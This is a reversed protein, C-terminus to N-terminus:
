DEWMDPWHRNNKRSNESRTLLQMNQECHLGCVHKGLLPVVHDVTLGLANATKYIEAITSLNAWKPLAKLEAARRTGSHFAVADPNAKKWAKIRANCEARNRERYSAERSRYSALNKARSKRARELHQDKTRAQYNRKAARISDKNQERYAKDSASKRDKNCASWNRSREKIAEANKLYYLRKYEKDCPKCYTGVKQKQFEFLPKEAKCKPCLRLNSSETAAAALM